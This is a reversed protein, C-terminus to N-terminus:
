TSLALVGQCATCGTDLDESHQSCMPVIVLDQGSEGQDILETCIEQAEGWSDLDAEAFGRGSKSWIGFKAVDCGM